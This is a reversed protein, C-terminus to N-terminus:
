LYGFMTASVGRDVVLMMTPCVTRDIGNGGVRAGVLAGSWSLWCELDVLLTKIKM